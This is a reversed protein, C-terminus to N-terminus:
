LNRQGRGVARSLMAAIQGESRRFSQADQATVNFTVNIGPGAGEARVGLRGDAGRALPLIAEPGAEGAIGRRGGSLPFSVPSAVVGGKAFPLPLAPGLAAGGILGTLANGFAQSIPSLAAELAHKSLSLALDRLVDSLARGKVAADTFARTLDGAFKGSMRSAEGLAARLPAVDGGIVVYLGDTREVM